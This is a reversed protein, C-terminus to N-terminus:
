DRSASLSEQSGYEGYYANSSSSRRIKNLLMGVVKNKDLQMVAEKIQYQLTKGAESVLVIQGAYQALVRAHSTLLLPPADLLVVRDSYRQSLESILNLM